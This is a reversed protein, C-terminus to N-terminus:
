QLCSSCNGKKLITLYYHVTVIRLIDRIDTLRLMVLVIKLRKQGYRAPKEKKRKNGDVTQRVPGGPTVVIGTESDLAGSPNRTAKLSTKGLSGWSGVALGDM